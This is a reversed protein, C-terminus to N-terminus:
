RIIETNIAPRQCNTFNTLPRLNPLPSTRRLQPNVTWLDIFAYRLKNSLLSVTTIDDEEIQEPSKKFNHKYELKEQDYLHDNCCPDQQYHSDISQPEYDPITPLLRFPRSTKQTVTRHHLPTEKQKLQM